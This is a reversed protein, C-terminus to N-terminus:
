CKPLRYVRVQANPAGTAATFTVDIDGDNKAFRGSEFPGIMRSSTAGGGTAALAVSLDGQGARLAPPNDGAKILVTLAADDANVVEIVMRDTSSGAVIPVTGNTDITDVTPRSTAANRTLETITLTSPNAM